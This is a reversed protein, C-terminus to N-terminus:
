YSSGADSYPEGQGVIRVDVTRENTPDANPDLDFRVAEHNWPHIKLSLQSGDPFQYPNQVQQVVGVTPTVVAPVPVEVAAYGSFDVWANYQLVPDFDFPFGYQGQELNPANVSVACAMNQFVVAFREDGALPTGTADFFYPYWEHSDFSSEELLDGFTAWSMNVYPFTTAGPITNTLFRVTLDDSMDELTGAHMVEAMYAFLIHGKDYGQIGQNDGPDWDFQFAQSSPYRTSRYYSVNFPFGFKSIRGEDNGVYAPGANARPEYYHGEFKGSPGVFGGPGGQHGYATFDFLHSLEHVLVHYNLWDPAIPISDFEGKPITLIVGNEDFVANPQLPDEDKDSILGEIM